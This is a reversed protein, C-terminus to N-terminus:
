DRGSHIERVIEVNESIQDKYKPFVGVVVADNPKIHAFVFRFAERVEESSGCKRGAALIKFLLCTKDTECVFRCMRDRDEEIFPEEVRKGGALLSQREVRSINYCCAMYFDIDWSREECYELVEPIHSCIGVQLGLDRIIKLYEQIEDIRGAKWLEDTYSGHHYVAIPHHKAIQRINDPIDGWETATQVIWHMAGGRNRYEDVWGMVIRDGRSVMATIGAREADFLTQVVREATYYEAMERDLTESLHSYGRFPNGGIILRSIDYPGFPISPLPPHM